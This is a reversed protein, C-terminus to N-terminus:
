KETVQVNSVGTIVLRYRTFPVPHGFGVIGILKGTKEDKKWGASETVDLRGEFEAVVRYKWCGICVSGPTTPQQADFGRRFKLFEENKVFGLKSAKFDPDDAYAILVEDTCGSIRLLGDHASHVAEATVTVVAGGKATTLPCSLQQPQAVVVVALSLCLMASKVFRIM